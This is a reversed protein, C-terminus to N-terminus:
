APPIKNRLKLRGQTLLRRLQVPSQRLILGAQAYSLELMDILIVALRETGPLNDMQKQLPNQQAKIGLTKLQAKLCGECVLQLIQTRFDPKKGIFNAYAQRVASQM